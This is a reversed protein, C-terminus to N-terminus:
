RKTTRKRAAVKKRGVTKGRRAAPKPKAAIRRGNSTASGPKRGRRPARAGQTLEALHKPCFDKVLNKGGVRFTVSEADPRGCVDCVLMLAEAMQKEM